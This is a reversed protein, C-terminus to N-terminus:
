QRRLGAAFWLALLPLLLASVVFVPPAGFRDIVPAALAIGFSQGLYLAASFIGLATSRAEPAMQTANVQLTNHLMFFGLGIVGIAIFGVSWHLGAALALYCIGLIIGGGAALGSQGLRNLLHQVSAAYVLGGAGFLGLVLGVASFSLGQRVHLDAGVYAFSGFMLVGEIFACLTVFRAWPRSLVHRYGAILGSRTEARPSVRTLPNVSLELVLGATAILFMAALVFFVTRWGFYDGLIGGAAQGLILGSIQGTLFRGLVPQRREYPVVDGIYAMGLPIIMGAAIGCLLRALGLGALSQALGCALTGLGSLICLVAVTPYKPWRDGLPGAVAQTLGHSVAYASAVISAAGVTTGIDAAIQPVLPDSIRVMAHSAVAAVALLVIARTPTRESLSTM